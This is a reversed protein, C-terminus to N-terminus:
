HLAAAAAHCSPRAAARCKLLCCCFCRVLPHLLTPARPFSKVPGRPGRKGGGRRKRAMGKFDRQSRGGWGPSCFGRRAPTRRSSMTAARRPAHTHKTRGCRRKKVVAVEGGKRHCRKDDAAAAAAIAPPAHQPSERKSRGGPGRREMAEKKGGERGRNKLTNQGGESEEETKDKYVVSTNIIQERRRFDPTAHRASKAPSTHDRQQRGTRVAQRRRSARLLRRRRPARRVTSGPPCSVVSPRICIICSVLTCGAVYMGTYVNSHRVFALGLQPCIVPQEEAVRFSSGFSRTAMVSSVMLYLAKMLLTYLRRFVIRPTAGSARAPLPGPRLLLPRRARPGAFAGPLENRTTLSRSM